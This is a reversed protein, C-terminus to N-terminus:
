FRPCLCSCQWYHCSIKQDHVSVKDTRKPNPGQALNAPARAAVQVYARGPPVQIGPEPPMQPPLFAPAPM